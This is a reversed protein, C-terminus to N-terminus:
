MKKTHPPTKPIKTAIVQLGIRTEEDFLNKATASEKEKELGDRIGKLAKKIIDRTALKEPLDDAPPEKKIEAKAPKQLNKKAKLAKAIEKKAEKVLPKVEKEAAGGVAAVKNKQKLKKKQKEDNISKVRNAPTKKDFEATSKEKKELNKVKGM